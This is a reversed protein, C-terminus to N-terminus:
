LLIHLMLAGIAIILITIGIFFIRNDKTFISVNLESNVLDDIMGSMNTEFGSAYDDITYKLIQKNILEKTTEQSILVLRNQENQQNIYKQMEITSEFVQNFKKESTKGNDSDCDTCNTKFEM